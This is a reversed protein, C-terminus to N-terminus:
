DWAEVHIRLRDQAALFAKLERTEAPQLEYRDTLFTSMCLEAEYIRSSKFGADSAFSSIEAGTTWEGAPRYLKGELINSRFLENM